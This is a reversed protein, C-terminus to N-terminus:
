HILNFSFFIHVSKPIVLLIPLKLAKDLKYSIMYNFLWKAYTKMSILESIRLHKLLIM